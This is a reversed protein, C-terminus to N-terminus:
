ISPSTKQAVDGVGAISYISAQHCHSPVYGREPLDQHATMEQTVRLLCFSSFITFKYWLIHLSTTTFYKGCRQDLKEQQDEQDEREELARSFFVSHNFIVPLSM